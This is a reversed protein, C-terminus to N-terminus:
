KAQLKLQNKLEGNQFRLLLIEKRVKCERCAASNLPFNVAPHNSSDTLLLNEFRNDSKIGNIHHVIEQRELPRGLYEEMVYRHEQIIKGTIPHHIWVYGDSKLCREKYRWPRKKGRLAISINRRRAEGLPKGKLGESIKKRTDNSVLHGKTTISRKRNSEESQKRGTIKTSQSMVRPDTEKTLGKNWSIHGKGRPKGKPWGKTM